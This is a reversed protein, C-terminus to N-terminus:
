TFWSFSILDLISRGCESPGEQLPILPFPHPFEQIELFLSLASGARCRQGQQPFFKLPSGCNLGIQVQRFGVPGSASFVAM